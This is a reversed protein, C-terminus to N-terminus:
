GFRIGFRRRPLRLRLVPWGYEAAAVALGARPNVPRPNGVALMLALDEEGDAYFYSRQLDVGNAGCFQTVAEAKRKGWIIPAVIAGTLRGNEDVDFRNCIVHAIGLARATPAAHMTMASSSLVLTHGLAQHARVIASMDDYVRFRIYREFLHEGVDHLEALSEGRLYGGARRLLQEFKMRGFRYRLAAEVTGTLEGIRAQRHRIRYRLHAAATFGEVLTGDLDFFAGIHAGAPGVRIDTVHEM